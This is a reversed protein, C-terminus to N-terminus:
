GRPRQYGRARWFLELAVFPALFVLSFWDSWEVLM